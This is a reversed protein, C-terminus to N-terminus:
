RGLANILLGGLYEKETRLEGSGYAELLMRGRKDRSIFATPEKLGCDKLVKEARKEATRNNGSGRAASYGMDELIDHVSALQETYIRRMLSILVYGGGFASASLRLSYFFITPLNNKPM